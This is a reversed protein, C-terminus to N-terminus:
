EDRREAVMALDHWDEFLQQYQRLCLIVATKKGDADVLYQERPKPLASTTRKDKVCASLDRGTEPALLYAALRQRVPGGCIM